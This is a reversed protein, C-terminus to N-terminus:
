RPQRFRYVIAVSTQFPVPQRGERMPYWRWELFTRHAADALQPPCNTIAVTSPVGFVDVHVSAKCRYQGDPWGGVMKPADGKVRRKVEPQQHKPRRSPQTWPCPAEADPPCFAGELEAREERALGLATTQKQLIHALDACADEDENKCDAALRRLALTGLSM